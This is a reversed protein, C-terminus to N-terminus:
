WKELLYTATGVQLFEPTLHEGKTLDVLKMNMDVNLVKATMMVMRCPASPPFYYFDAKKVPRRPMMMM